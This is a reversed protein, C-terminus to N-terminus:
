VLLLPQKTVWTTLTFGGPLMVPPVDPTQTPAVVVQDPLGAPPVQSLLSAPLAVTFAAPSTLPTAAPVAVMVYVGVVPQTPILTTVTFAMGEIVPVVFTQLPNDLENDPVGEPPVHLPLELIAVTLGSPTTVPELGPLVFIVYVLLPQAVLTGNVTLAVGPVIEPLKPSHTPPVDEKPFVAEPPVQCLAVVVTAVMLAEPTTLATPAPVDVIVYVKGPPQKAVDTTVTFAAGPAIPPVSLAHTPPVVVKVFLAVPPVQTLLLVPTAVMPEDDPTTFPMAVPVDKIV